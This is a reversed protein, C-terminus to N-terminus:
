TFGLNNKVFDTLFAIYTRFQLCTKSVTDIVTIENQMPEQEVEASCHHKHDALNSAQRSISSFDASPRTLQFSTINM